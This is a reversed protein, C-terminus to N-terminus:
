EAGEPAYYRSFYSDKYAERSANVLLWSKAVHKHSKPVTELAEPAFALWMNFNVSQCIGDQTEIDCHYGLEPIGENIGVIKATQGAREYLAPTPHDATKLIVPIPTKLPKM